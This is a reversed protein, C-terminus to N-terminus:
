TAQQAPGEDLMESVENDNLGLKQVLEEYGQEAKDAMEPPIGLLAVLKEKDNPEMIEKYHGISKYFEIDSQILRKKELFTLLEDKQGMQEAFKMVTAYRTEENIDMFSEDMWSEPNDKVLISEMFAKERPTVSSGYQEMIADFLDNGRGAIEAKLAEIKQIQRHNWDRDIIKAELKEIEDSNDVPDESDKTAVEEAKLDSISSQVQSNWRAVAEEPTYEEFYDGGALFAGDHFAMKREGILPLYTTRTFYEKEEAGAPNWYHGITDWLQGAGATYLIPSAVGRVTTAMLGPDKLHPQVLNEAAVSVGISAALAVGAMVLPHKPAYKLASAARWGAEAAILGVTALAIREGKDEANYTESCVWYTSLYAVGLPMGKRAFYSLYELGAGGRAFWKELTSRPISPRGLKKTMKEFFLIMREKLPIKDLSDILIRKGGRELRMKKIFDDFTMKFEREIMDKLEVHWTISRDLTATGEILEDLWRLNERNSFISKLNALYKMRDGWRKGGLHYWKEWFVDSNQLAKECFYEAREPHLGGKIVKELLRVPNARIHQYAFLPLSHGPLIVMRALGSITEGRNLAMAGQAIDFGVVGAATGSLMVGTFGLVKGKAGTNEDVLENISWELGYWIGKYSHLYLAGIDRADEWDVDYFHEGKDDKIAKNRTVKARILSETMRKHIEKMSKTHKELLAKDGVNLPEGAKLSAFFASLKELEKMDTGIADLDDKQAKVFFGKYSERAKLYDLNQLEDDDFTFYPVTREVLVQMDSWYSPRALRLAELDQTLESLAEQLAEIDKAELKEEDKSAADVRDAFDDSKKEEREILGQMGESYGEWGASESSEFLHLEFAKKLLADVTMDDAGPIAARLRDMKGELRDKIKDEMKIQDPLDFYSGIVPLTAFFGSALAHERGAEAKLLDKVKLGATLWISNDPVGFFESYTAHRTREEESRAGYNWTALGEIIRGHSFHSMSAFLRVKYMWGMDHKELWTEVGETGMVRGAVLLGGAFLATSVAAKKLFSWGSFLEGFFGSNEEKSEPAKDGEEGRVKKYLWQGLKYVGVAGLAILAGSAIPHEKIKETMWTGVGKKEDLVETAADFLVTADTRIDPLLRAHYIKSSELAPNEEFFVLAELLATEQADVLKGKLDLFSKAEARPDLKNKLAVVAFFYPFTDRFFLLAEAKAESAEEPKDQLIALQARIEEASKQDLVSSLLELREKESKGEDKVEDVVEKSLAERRDKKEEWVMEALLDRRETVPSAEPSPASGALKEPDTIPARSGDAM